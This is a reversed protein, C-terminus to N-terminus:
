AVYPAHSDPLISRRAGCDNTQARAPAVAPMTLIPRRSDAQSDTKVASNNASTLAPSTGTQFRSRTRMGATGPGNKKLTGGCSRSYRTEVGSRTVITRPVHDHTNMCQIKCMVVSSVTSASRNGNSVIQATTFTGTNDRKGHVTNKQTSTPMTIQPISGAARVLFQVIVFRSSQLMPQRVAQYPHIGVGSRLEM